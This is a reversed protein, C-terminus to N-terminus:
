TSPPSQSRLRNGQFVLRPRFSFRVPWRFSTQPYQLVSPSRRGALGSGTMRVAGQVLQLLRVDLLMLM